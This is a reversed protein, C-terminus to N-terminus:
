LTADGKNKLISLSVYSLTILAITSVSTSCALPNGSCSLNAKNSANNSKTLGESGATSCAQISLSFAAHRGNVVALHRQDTGIFHHQFIALSVYRAFAEAM